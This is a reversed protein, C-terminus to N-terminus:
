LDFFHLELKTFCKLLFIQLTLQPEVWLFM